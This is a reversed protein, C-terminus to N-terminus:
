IFVYLIVIDRDDYTDNLDICTRRNDRQMGSHHSWQLATSARLALPCSYFDHYLWNRDHRLCEERAAFLRKSVPEAVYCFGDSLRM